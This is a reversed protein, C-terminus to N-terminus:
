EYHTLWGTISYRRHPAYNAVMSVSHNVPVKFLVLSNFQPIFTDTIQHDDDLFHTLGGFDANWEKSFNFVYAMRRQEFPSADVHEKLFHGPEYCCAHCDVRNFLQDGSVARIFDFLEDSGMFDLFKQLFLDQDIGNRRALLVDYGKYFSQYKDVADAHIRAVVAQWQDESMGARQEPYIKGIVDPGTAQHDFYMVRWPVEGELCELVQEAFEPALVDAIRIRSDRQFQAALAETDLDPNIRPAKPISCEALM